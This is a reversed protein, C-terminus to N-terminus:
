ALNAVLAIAEQIVGQFNFVFNDQIVQWCTNGFRESVYFQFATPNNKLKLAQWTKEDRWFGWNCSPLKPLTKLLM